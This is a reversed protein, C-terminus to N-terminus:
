TESDQHVAKSLKADAVFAAPWGGHAEIVEDIEKMLRITESLTIAIRHYHRIYAPLTADNTTVRAYTARQAPLSVM